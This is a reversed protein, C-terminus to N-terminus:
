LNFDSVHTNQLMLGKAIINLIKMASKKAKKLDQNNQAM